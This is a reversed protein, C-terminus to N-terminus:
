KVWLVQFISLSGFNLKLYENKYIMRSILGGLVPGRVGFQFEISAMDFAHPVVDLNKDFLEGQYNIQFDIQPLFANYYTAFEVLYNQYVKEDIEVWVQHQWRHDLFPEGDTM